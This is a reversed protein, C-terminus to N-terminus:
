PSITQIIFVTNTKKKLEGACSTQKESPVASM